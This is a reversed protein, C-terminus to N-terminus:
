ESLRKSSEVSEWYCSLHDKVFYFKIYASLWVASLMFFCAIGYSLGMFNRYPLSRIYNRVLNLPSVPEKFKYKDRIQMFGMVWRINQKWWDRLCTSAMYYVKINQEYRVKYGKEEAMLQVYYDDNLLPPVNILIKSNIMYSGRLKFKSLSIYHNLNSELYSMFGFLTRMNNLPVLRFGIIGLDKEVKMDVLKRFSLLEPLMDGDIFIIWDIGSERAIAFAKNIAHVKGRMSLNIPVVNKFYEAILSVIKDTGDEPNTMIIYIPMEPVCRILSSLLHDINHAENRVPVFVAKSM